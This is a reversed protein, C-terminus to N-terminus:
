MVYNQGIQYKIILLQHLEKEIKRYEILISSLSEVICPIGFVESIQKIKDQKGEVELIKLYHLSIEKKEIDRQLKKFTEEISQYFEICGIVEPSEQEICHKVIPDIARVLIFVHVQSNHIVKKWNHVDCSDKVWQCIKFLVCCTFLFGPSTEVFKVEASMLLDSATEIIEAGIWKKGM